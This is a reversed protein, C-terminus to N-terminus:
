LLGERRAIDAAETRTKAGLKALINSVHTRVTARGIFLADAIEPNSRGAVLLELVEQERPSLSGTSTGTSTAAPTAPSLESVLGIAAAVGAELPMARGAAAERRYTDEGLTERASAVTQRLRERETPWLTGSGREWCAEAVGILQAAAPVRGAAIALAAIGAIPSALYWRDGSELLLRLSEVYNRAAVALDGRDHWFIALDSLKNGAGQKNGFATHLALGEEIMAIGCEIEGSQALALGVDGLAYALWTQNGAQRILEIAEEGLPISEALRGGTSTVIHLLYLSMATGFTLGHRRSLDLGQQGLAEARAADGYAWALIGAGFLAWACRDPPADDGRAIAQELWRTGEALHGEIFWFLFLSGALRLGDEPAEHALSWALAERLNPHERELREVSARQGPGLIVREAREALDLCWAAHRRRAQEEEGSAALRELGFERVTELMVFRPEDGDDDERRLLSKDLLSSVFELVSPTGREPPPPPTPRQAGEPPSPARSSVAGEPGGGGGGGSGFAAGGSRLPVGETLAEAAELTFGGAFVAVRRFLAQEAPSLLDHSWAIADRMTRLRDPLDTPGDTLLPLRSELRARLEDPSLLRVRAAALELALPLGDLRRCIEAVAAANTATLAFEPQTEQGRQVFLAVAPFAEISAPELASEATPVALPPVPVTREGRVRLRTRSTTLAQLGPCARLLDALLPAADVIQEFNDLVLLLRRDRLETQLVRLPDAAGAERLGLAGAVTTMALEPDRISALRVLRVGDPFADHLGDAAAIALRSKGVGGPGVLTVLRVGARLLARVEAVDEDRGVLPTLPVPLPAPPALERRRGPSVETLPEEDGAAPAPPDISHARAQVSRPAAAEGGSQHETPEGM